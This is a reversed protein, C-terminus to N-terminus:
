ENLWNEWDEDAGKKTTTQPSMAARPSTSKSRATVKGVDDVDLDGNLLATEWDENAKKPAAKKPAVKKPPPPTEKKPAGNDENLWDECEEGWDGGGGGGWGASQEDGAALKAKAAAQFPNEGGGSLGGYQSGAQSNSHGNSVRGETAQRPSGPSQNAVDDQSPSMRGDQLPSKRGDGDDHYSDAAPEIAGSNSPATEYGLYSQVGYWSKVGVKSAKNALSYMSSSADDYITGDQVKTSLNASVAHAKSSAPKIVNENMKTGYKVAKESAQSALKTAQVSAQSAMKTAGVSLMSWGTALSSFTSDWGSDAPVDGDDHSAGSSGFGVYKGGQNPPLDDRKTENEDQKRKFYEEKEANLEGKSKGLFDELDGQSNIAGNQQSVDSSSSSMSKRNGSAQPSSGRGLNSLDPASYTRAQSSDESWERGDAETAIKDRYLAATKSNYKEQLSMGARCDGRSKFYERARNNGGAKMKEVEIDKWKDMTVSRVFSLHVGLGRHKGSCELCIWIGYSISVWQPNHGNCEFCTNNGDKFKLERLVRRTRPSAM